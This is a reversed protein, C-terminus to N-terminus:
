RAQEILNLWDSGFKKEYKARTSTTAQKFPTLDVKNIKTLKGMENLYKQELAAADAYTQQTIDHGVEAFVKRQEDTLSNWFNKSAILFSPTYVHSTESFYGAVEYQKQEYFGYTAAEAGDVVHTQLATFTEKWAVSQPTAGIKRFVDQRLKGGSVRIKLGKLDSPTKIARVSNLIHRFGNEYIGLVKVGAKDEIRQEVAQGLPGSMAREVHERSDFLWPLDFIGLKKDLKLVGSAVSIMEIAGAKVNTILAKETGLQGSPYLKFEFQGPLRKEVESAFLQSQQYLPSLASVHSAIRVEVPNAAVSFSAVITATGVLFHNLKM